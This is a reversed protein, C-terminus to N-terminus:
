LMRFQRSGWFDVVYNDIFCVFFFIGILGFTFCLFSASVPCVKDVWKRADNTFDFAPDHLLESKLSQYVELFAARASDKAM